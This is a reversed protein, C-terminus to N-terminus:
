EIPREKLPKFAYGSEKAPLPAVPESLFFKGKKIWDKLINAIELARSYSSLGGAPIEKGKLNIKGSRLEKYNVEGLSKTKGQPYDQSYDIVQTFIEEDKVAAYRCVEENLLPIPIGIGVTLTAGYGVFTTGKLWQSSMEKLDGAVAITGAPVRPVENKGRPAQPNHQTGPWYIYGRGGGLFIRTGIGITKYLPDNLLPSLQGASCFNANGLRPQLIGMYTYIVKDSLNV